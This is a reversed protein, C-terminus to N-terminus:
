GANLVDHNVRDLVAPQILSDLVPSIGLQRTGKGWAETDRGGTRPNASVRRAATSDPNAALAGQPLAETGRRPEGELQPM